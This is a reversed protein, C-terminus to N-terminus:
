PPLPPEREPLGIKVPPKQHAHQQVPCDHLWTRRNVSGLAQVHTGVLCAVARSYDGEKNVLLVFLQKNRTESSSFCVNM